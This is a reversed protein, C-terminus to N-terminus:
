DEENNDDELFEIYRLLRKKEKDKMVSVKAIIRAETPDDTKRVSDKMPLSIAEVHIVENNFGKVTATKIPISTGTIKPEKDDFGMIYLPSCDLVKALKGANISHPENSGNVYHSISSKGVGSKDALEQATLGKKAMLDKLRLATKPYKM